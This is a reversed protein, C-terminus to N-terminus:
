TLPKKRIELLRSTTLVNEFGKKQLKMYLAKDGTWLTAKLYKTLTVFVIDDVDIDKVLFESEEWTKRPILNENIFTIRNYLAFLSEDLESESLKSIKTLKSKHKQIEARM